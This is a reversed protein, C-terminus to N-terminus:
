AGPLLNRVDPERDLSWVRDVIRAMEEDSTGNQFAALSQTKKEIEERGPTNGPDGKPADVRPTIHAGDNTEIEIGACVATRPPLSGGAGRGDRAPDVGGADVHRDL